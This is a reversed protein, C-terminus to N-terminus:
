CDEPFYACYDGGLEDADRQSGVQTGLAAVVVLFGVVLVVGVVVALALLRGATPRRARAAVPQWGAGDWWWQGDPSLQPPAGPPPEASM